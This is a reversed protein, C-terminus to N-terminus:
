ICDSIPLSEYEKILRSLKKVKEEQDEITVLQGNIIEKLITIQHELEKILSNNVENLKQQTTM